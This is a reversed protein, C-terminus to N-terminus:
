VRNRPRLHEHGHRAIKTRGRIKTARIATHSNVFFTAPEWLGRANSPSVTRPRLRYITCNTDYNGGRGLENPQGDMHRWETDRGWFGVLDCVWSACSYRKGLRAEVNLIDYLWPVM